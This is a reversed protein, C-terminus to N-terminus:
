HNDGGCVTVAACRTVNSARTSQPDHAFSILPHHRGRRRKLNEILSIDMIKLKQLIILLIIYQVLENTRILCAFKKHPFQFLSFKLELIESFNCINLLSFSPFPSPSFIILRFHSIIKNSLSYFFIDLLFNKMCSYIYIHIFICLEYLVSVNRFHKM